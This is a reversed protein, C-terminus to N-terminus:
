AEGESIAANERERLITMLRAINRRTQRLRTFDTLGGTAMQFRLNMYEERADNLRSQIETDSLERIQSAKM